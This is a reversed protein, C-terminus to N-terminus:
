LDEEIVEKEKGVKAVEEETPVEPLEIDDAEEKKRRPAKLLRRHEAFARFKKLFVPFPDHSM